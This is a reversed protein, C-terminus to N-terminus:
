TLQCAALSVSSGKAFDAGFFILCTTSHERRYHHVLVTVHLRARTKELKCFRETAICFISKCTPNLLEILDMVVPCIAITADLRLELPVLM